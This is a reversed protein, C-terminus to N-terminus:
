AQAREIGREAAYELWQEAARRDALERTLGGEFELLAAREEIWEERHLEAETM